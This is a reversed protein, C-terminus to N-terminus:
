QATTQFTVCLVCIGQKIGGGIFLFISRPLENLGFIFNSECWVRSLCVNFTYTRRLHNAQCAVLFFILIFLSGAFVYLRSLFNACCSVLFSNSFAVEDLCTQSSVGFKIIMTYSSEIVANNIFLEKCNWNAFRM